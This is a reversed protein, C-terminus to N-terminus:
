VPVCLNECVAYDLRLRMVVPRKPDEATVRLPFIVRNLYGISMGAGDSFRVPAPWRVQADKVNTSASFDFRPPIGSDGPYRWYTKWSPALTIEVGARFVRQGAEDTPSGVILRAASHADRDWASADAALVAGVSAILASTVVVVSLTQFPRLMM